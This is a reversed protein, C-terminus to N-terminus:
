LQLSAYTFTTGIIAVNIDYVTYILQVSSLTKNSINVVEVIYFLDQYNFPTASNIKILDNPIINIAHVNQM